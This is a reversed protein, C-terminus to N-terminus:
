CLLVSYPFIVPYRGFNCEKKTCFIRQTGRKLQLPLVTVFFFPFKTSFLSSSQFLDEETSKEFDCQQLRMNGKSLSKFIHIYLKKECFLSQPNQGGDFQFACQGILFSVFFRNWYEHPCRIIIKLFVQCVTCQKAHSTVVQAPSKVKKFEVRRVRCM